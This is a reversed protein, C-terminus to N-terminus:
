LSSLFLTSNATLINWTFACQTAAAECGAADPVNFGEPCVSNVGYTVYTGGDCETRDADAESGGQIVPTVKWCRFIFDGDFAPITSCALSGPDLLCNYVEEMDPDMTFRANFAMTTAKQAFETGAPFLLVQDHNNGISQSSKNDKVGGVLWKM